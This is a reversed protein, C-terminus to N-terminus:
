ESIAGENLVVYGQTESVAEIFQLVFLVTVLTYPLPGAVSNHALILPKLTLKHFIVISVLALM